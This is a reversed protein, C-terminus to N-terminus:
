AAKPPPFLSRLRDVSRSTTFHRTVHARGALGLGAAAAPEALLHELAAAVASPDNPPVIMGTLNDIVVERLGNLETTVVPVGAVMAELVATPMGDRDGDAAVVCPLCFAAARGYLEIVEEHPIPGTFTAHVGREAALAELPARLPGDGVIVLHTQRGRQALQACADIVDALGKKEILRAVSLVIDPKALRTGAVQIRAADVSNAIVHLPTSGGLLQDLYARNAHSVTAVFSAAALKERLHDPRVDQHYIDKAHATVSFTPGGMVRVLSALRAAATAFHAHVHDIRALHLEHRLVTAQSLRRLNVMWPSRLCNAAARLWPRLGTAGAFALARVVRLPEFLPRHPLYVVNARVDAVFAHCVREEPRAIAFITVSEGQRELEIIETAIFTESLRPYRKLVYGLRRHPASM